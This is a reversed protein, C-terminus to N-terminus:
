YRGNLIYYEMETLKLHLGMLNQLITLAKTTTTHITILNHCLLYSCFQCNKANLHNIKAPGTVCKRIHLQLQVALEKLMKIIMLNAM